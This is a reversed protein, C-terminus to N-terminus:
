PDGRGIKRRIWGVIQKRLPTPNEDIQSSLIALANRLRENEDYLRDILDETTLGFQIDPFCNKALCIFEAIGEDEAHAVLAGDMTSRIEYPPDDSSPNEHFEWEGDDLECCLLKLSEVLQKVDPNKGSAM